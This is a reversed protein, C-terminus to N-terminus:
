IHVEIAAGVIFLRQKIPATSKIRKLQKLLTVWKVTSPYYSM